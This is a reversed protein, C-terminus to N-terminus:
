NQPPPPRAPDGRRYRRELGFLRAEAEGTRSLTEAIRAAAWPVIGVRDAIEEATSFRARDLQILVASKLEEDRESPYIRDHGDNWYIGDSWLIFHSRCGTDRWVSPYLSIGTEDRYLRWAKGARRDLNIRLVEGCGDPCNMVLLRPTGREVVVV